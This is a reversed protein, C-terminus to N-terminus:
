FYGKAIWMLGTPDLGLNYNNCGTVSLLHEMEGKSRDILQWDAMTEIFPKYSHYLANDAANTFMLCGGPLIRKGVHKLITTIIGDPLYDFLGGAYALDFSRSVSLLKPIRRVNTCQYTTRDNIKALRRSSEDLASQDFDILLLEANADIIEKQVIEVDRSAGCAISV